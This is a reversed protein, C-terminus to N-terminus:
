YEYIKLKLCNESSKICPLCIFHNKQKVTYKAVSLTHTHIYVWVCVYM